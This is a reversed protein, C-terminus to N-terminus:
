PYISRYGKCQQAFGLLAHVASGQGSEDYHLPSGKYRTLHPDRVRLSVGTKLPKRDRVFVVDPPLPCRLLCIVPLFSGNALAVPRLILPSAMRDSDGSPQLTVDEPDGQRSDKFHFVIPLGFEARPAADDPIHELRQHRRLRKGTVRRITEPEPWRSRRPRNPQRGPNRGVGEGQRFKELCDIVNSWAQMPDSAPQGVLIEEALTPWDRASGTGRCLSRCIEVFESEKRPVTLPSAGHSGIEELRIAGCGRRTRAGIGGFTAWALLTTELDPWLDDPAEIVLEFTLRRLCNAPPNKSSSPDGVVSDGQFPFLAYAVPQFVETFRPRWRHQGRRTQGSRVYRACPDKRFFVEEVAVRVSSAREMSGWVEEQRARLEKATSFQAGVTARWWFELHGRITTGRVPTVEDPAREAVGAGFVPTIATVRFRRVRVSPKSSVQPVAPASPISTPKPM